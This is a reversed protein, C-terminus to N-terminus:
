RWIRRRVQPRDAAGWDYKYAERGRLFDFSRLGERVASQLVHAMLLWGPGFRAFAPDFAHIYSYASAGQVIGYQAAIPREGLRLVHLRLMGAALLDGTVAEHFGRVRPEAFVGAEGRENWRRAHLAMVAALASARGAADALEFRVAGLEALRRACRRLDTRRSKPLRGLVEAPDHPLALTPCPAEPALRSRGEAAAALLPSDAPLDRFDCLDWLKRRALHRFLAAAAARRAAPEAILDLRDSLGNGLLTLQRRGDSRGHIFMPALAVLRGDGRFALTWLGQPLFARRWAILWEPTQFPTAQPCRELLARWEPALAELEAPDTLEAVTLAQSEGIIAPDSAM